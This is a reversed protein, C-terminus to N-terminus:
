DGDPRFVYVIGRVTKIFRPNGPDPEVKKRIRNIRVDIARDFAEPDRADALELLQERTLVHKANDLFAKLLAYESRILIQESGAEDRM